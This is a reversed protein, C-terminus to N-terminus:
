QLILLDKGTIAELEEDDEVSLASCIHKKLKKNSKLEEGCFLCKHINEKGLLKEEFEDFYVGLKPEYKEKYEALFPLNLLESADPRDKPDRTLMLKILKICRDFEQPIKAFKIEKKKINKMIRKSENDNFPDIGTCMEYLICGASWIDVKHNYPKKKIVEPAMYHLTGIQHTDWEAVHAQIQFGWGFDLIKVKKDKTVLINDPKLDRHVLNCSHIHQLGILIQVLVKLIKEESTFKKKEIYKTLPHGEVYEM